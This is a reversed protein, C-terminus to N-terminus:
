EEVGGREDGEWMERRKGGEKKKEGDKRKM